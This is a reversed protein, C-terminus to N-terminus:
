IRMPVASRPFVPERQRFIFQPNGDVFGIVFGEIDPRILDANWTLTNDANAIIFARRESRVVEPLHAIGTRATRTGFDEEVVAVM